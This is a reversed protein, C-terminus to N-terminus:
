WEAEGIVKRNRGNEIEAMMANLEKLQAEDLEFGVEPLKSFVSVSTKTPKNKSSHFRRKVKKVSASKWAKVAADLGQNEWIELLEVVHEDVPGAAGPRVCDRVLLSDLRKKQIPTLNKRHTFFKIFLKADRNTM